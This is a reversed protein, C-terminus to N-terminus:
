GNLFASNRLWHRDPYYAFILTNDRIKSIIPKVLKPSVAPCGWSRGLEGYRAGVSGEAYWAGHVVIARRYANNNIGPELGSIRLSYGESGVYPEATTVFVGISSKLSGNENSFSTANLEGSNRGHTVWTNYLVENNNLNIVWLRRETSPKSYDIITLIEKQDLGEHRAKTYAILALRLVNPDLNDAQRDIINVETTIWQHTGPPEPNRPIFLFSFPSWGTICFFALLCFLHRLKM